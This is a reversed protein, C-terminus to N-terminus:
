AHGQEPSVLECLHGYEISLLYVPTSFNPFLSEAASPVTKCLQHPRPLLLYAGGLLPTKRSICSSGQFPGRRRLGERTQVALSTTGVYTSGASTPNLGNHDGAKFPYISYNFM